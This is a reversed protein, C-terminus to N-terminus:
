NDIIRDFEASINTGTIYDYLSQKRITYYSVWYNSLENIYRTVADDKESQATNLDIVGISGNAFRDLTIQYREQAVTDAKAALACQHKQNNFEFVNMMVEQRHDIYAQEVQTRVVDERSQAMKVRGRGQGWDIIPLSVGLSVIEQDMPNKYAESFTQGQQTLGFQARFTLDIGRDAKAQAVSQEARLVQLDQNLAFSSNAYTHDLVEVYDLTLKPIAGPPILEIQVLDNYGLFSRLSFMARDFALQYDNISLGDNLLRLELQLLDSRTVSGTKNFREEAIKYMTGTNDYNKRAMDLRQQALLLNFYYRVATLTINEMTELYNRKAYEYEQPSIKKEWKLSNYGRLPQLYTINIPQSNYLVNHEPAYEDIRYLNTYVSLRGGTLAINQDISLSLNNRMNDNTIYNIEGTQPDQLDVLSRNYNGLTGHLNLSPLLKAQYSRYEWYSARFNHKAVLAQPSQDHAKVIVEELTFRLNFDQAGAATCFSALASVIIIKLRTPM